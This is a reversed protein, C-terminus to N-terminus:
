KRRWLAWHGRLPSVSCRHLRRAHTIGRRMRSRTAASRDGAMERRERGGDHKRQERQDRAVEDLLHPLILRADLVLHPADRRADRAGEIVVDVGDRHHERREAPPEVGRGAGEIPQSALGGVEGGALPKRDRRSPGAPGLDEGAALVGIRHEPERGHLRVALGDLGPPGGDGAEDEAVLRPSWEVEDNRRDFRAAANADEELGGDRGFARAGQQRGSQGLREPRGGQHVARPHQHRARAIGFARDPNRRRVLEPARGDAFRSGPGPRAVLSVGQDATEGQRPGGAPVDRHPGGM